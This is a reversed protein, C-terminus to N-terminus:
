AIIRGAVARNGPPTERISIIIEERRVPASAAIADTVAIVLQQKQDAALRGATIDIEILPM